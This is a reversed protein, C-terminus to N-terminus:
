KFAWGFNGIFNGLGHLLISPLISGNCLKENLFGLLLAGLGTFIFLVVHVLLSVEVGALLFLGNHMLGFLCAQMIFGAIKGFKAQFRKCLFGRFFIEEGLGNSFFSEILVPLLAAFGLGAYTNSVMNENSSMAELSQEDFFITYDTKWHVIYVVFFIAFCWWKMQPKPLYFGIWQFFNQKKRATVLWWIVPIVSCLLVMIVASILKSLTMEIM